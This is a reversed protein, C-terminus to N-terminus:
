MFFIFLINTSKKKKEWNSVYNSTFNKKKKEKILVRVEKNNEKKYPQIELVFCALCTLQKEDQVFSIWDCRLTTINAM